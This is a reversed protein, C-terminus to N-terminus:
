KDKNNSVLAATHADRPDPDAPPAPKVFDKFETKVEAEIDKKDKPKPDPM